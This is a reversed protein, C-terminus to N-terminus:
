SSPNSIRKGETDYTEVAGHTRLIDTIKADGVAVIQLRASDLYKKAAAQVQARTVAAIREPYRDWYDAPLGYRWRTVYYNLVQQPSELSLAFGAVMTRKADRFEKEPVAEDRIRAIEGVLDRLAPETVETRVDTFAQWAGRYQGASLGSYAGYTYGKDERLHIFLRGTPGGGVVQNLVQLVDYDPNMRDIAATGVVFNTQVSNPRAVLHVKSAGIAPPDVVAPKPVGARKWAAFRSEVLRKAEALSIDGAIAFAAHDPAYRAKHFDSLQARTVANLAQATPSVRGAPHAGYIVRAFMENALFNPSSRQRLLQARTREKYRGLDEEPFSPTLVVDAAIDLLPGFHETLSSGSVTSEPSSMGTGVTLTAALTELQESIQLSTRSRTGERMMAATFTALGPLEQPDYYGGAGPILLQFTIQPVRRDELVMLHLGNSLDGEQPRPLKVQLVADSVPAKGKPVVGKTSPAQGSTAPPVQASIAVAAAIAACPGAILLRIRRRM